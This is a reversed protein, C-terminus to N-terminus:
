DRARGARPQAKTGADRGRRGARFARRAKGPVSGRTEGDAPANRSAGETRVEEGASEMGDGTGPEGGSGCWPSDRFGKRLCWRLHRERHRAEVFKQWKEPDGWAGAKLHRPMVLGFFASVLCVLSGGGLALVVLVTLVVPGLSQGLALLIATGGLAIAAGCVSGAVAPWGGGFRLDAAEEKPAGGPASEPRNEM